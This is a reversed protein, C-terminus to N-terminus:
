KELLQETLSIRLKRQNQGQQLMEALWYFCFLDITRDSRLTLIFWRLIGSLLSNQELVRKSAYLTVKM